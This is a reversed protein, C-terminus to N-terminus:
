PPGCGSTVGNGLSGLVKLRHAGTHM